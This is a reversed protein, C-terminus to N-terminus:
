KQINLDVFSSPKRNRTAPAGYGLRTATEEGTRERGAPAVPGCGAILDWLASIQVLPKPIPPGHRPPRVPRGLLPSDRTPIGAQGKGRHADEPLDGLM